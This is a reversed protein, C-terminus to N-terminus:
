KEVYQPNGLSRRELEYRRRYRIEIGELILTLDKKSLLVSGTREDYVPVGFTGASLRKHYVAYGDKEWLLLKVQNRRQNFFVYIVDMLLPDRQMENRVKGSLGNFGCRMDAIGTYLYFQYGTLSLM